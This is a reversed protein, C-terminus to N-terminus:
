VRRVILVEDAVQGLPLAPIRHVVELVLLVISPLPVLDAEESPAYAEPGTAQTQHLLQLRTFLLATAGACYQPATRVSSVIFDKGPRGIIRPDLTLHEEGRRFLCDATGQDADRYFDLAGIGRFHRMFGTLLRWQM